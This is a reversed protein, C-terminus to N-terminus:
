YSDKHLLSSPYIVLIFNTFQLMLYLFTFLSYLIGNTKFVKNQPNM